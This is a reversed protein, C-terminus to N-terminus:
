VPILLAKGTADSTLDISAMLTAALPPENRLRFLIEGNNWAVERAASISWGALHNEFSPVAPLADGALRVHLVQRAQAILGQLTANLATYDNYQPTGHAPAIGTSECNAVIAQPLDHNIHANMGALAFQIRALDPQNRVNFVSQWCGPANGATLSAGIAAFYFGAFRVDLAAIWDPDAFSSAEVSTQVALTVQLYLWNFWKLGDTDACTSAIKQMIAVVDPVTRPPVAVAAVLDSDYPFMTLSSLGRSLVDALGIATL